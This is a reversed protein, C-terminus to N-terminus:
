EGGPSARSVQGVVASRRIESGDARVMDALPADQACDQPSSEPFYSESIGFEAAAQKNLLRARFADLKAQLTV